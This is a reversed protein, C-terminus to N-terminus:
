PASKGHRKPRLIGLPDNSMLAGKVAKDLHEKVKKIEPAVYKDITRRLLSVPPPAAAWDPHVEVFKSFGLIEMQFTLSDLKEKQFGRMLEKYHRADRIPIGNVKRIIFREPVPFRAIRLAIQMPRGSDTRTAVIGEDDPKMREYARVEYTLDKIAAGTAKDTVTNATDFNAPAPEVRFKETEQKKGDRVYSIAIDQDAGVRALLDNVFNRGSRWQDAYDFASGRSPMDYRSYRSSDEYRSSDPSFPMMGYSEGNPYISLLVDGVKVGAKEAPSNPYVLIVLVGCMGGRTEDMVKLAKALNPTLPQFEVGLWFAQGSTARAGRITVKDVYKDPKRLVDGFKTFLLFLRPNSEGSLGSPSSPVDADLRELRAQLEAMRMEYDYDSSSGYRDSGSGVESIFGLAQGDTTFVMSGGRPLPRLGYNVSQIDPLEYDGGCDEYTMKKKSALRALRFAVTEQHLKDVEAVIYYDGISLSKPYVFEMPDRGALTKFRVLFGNFSRFLGLLEGDIEKPPSSDDEYYIKELRLMRRPDAPQPVFVTGKNDIIYGRLIETKSEGPSSSSPYRERYYSPPGYEDRQEPAYKLHVIISSGKLMKACAKMKKDIDDVSIRPMALLRQGQWSSYGKDDTWLEGGLSFGLMKGRDDFILSGAPGSTTFTTLPKQSGKTVVDQLVNVTLGDNELSLFASYVNQGFGFPEAIVFSAARPAPEGAGLVLKLLVAPAKDPLGYLKATYTKGSITRVTIKKYRDLPLGPDPMLVWHGDDVLVGPVTLTPAGERESGRMICDKAEPPVTSLRCEIDVAVLVEAASDRIDKMQRIAAEDASLKGAALALLIVIPLLKKM